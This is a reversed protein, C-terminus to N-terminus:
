KLTGVVHYVLKGGVGGLSNDQFSLPSVVVVRVIESAESVM